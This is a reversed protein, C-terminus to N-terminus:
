LGLTLVSDVKVTAVYGRDGLCISNDSGHSCVIFKIYYSSYFVHGTRLSTESHCKPRQVRLICIQSM